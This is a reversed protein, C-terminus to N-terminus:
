LFRLWSKELLPQVLIYRIVVPACLHANFLSLHMELCNYPILLSQSKKFALLSKRFGKFSNKRQLAIQFLKKSLSLVLVYVLVALYCFHVTADLINLGLIHFLLPSLSIKRPLPVSLLLLADSKSQGNM